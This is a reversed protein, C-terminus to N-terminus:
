KRAPARAPRGREPLVSLAASSAAEVEVLNTNYTTAGCPAARDEALANACGSTDTGTADPAFWAGEKITVVGPAIDRTVKVPLLTAGRDNFVRVTDGNAIGRAAADDDILHRTEGVPERDFPM